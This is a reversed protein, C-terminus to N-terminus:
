PKIGALYKKRLHITIIFFRWACENVSNSNFGLVQIKSLKCSLKVKSLMKLAKFFRRACENISNPNFGLVQIKSLKCSLNLKSLM